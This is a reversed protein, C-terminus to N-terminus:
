MGGCAYSQDRVEIALRQVLPHCLAWDELIQESLLRYSRYEGEKVERGNLERVSFSNQLEARYSFSNIYKDYKLLPFLCLKM